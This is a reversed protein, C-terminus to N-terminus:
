LINSLFFFSQNKMKFLGIRVLLTFSLDENQIKFWSKLNSFFFFLICKKKQFSMCLIFFKIGTWENSKTFDVGVILNSSELGAQALASTVQFSIFLGEDM